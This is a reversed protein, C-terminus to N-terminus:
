NINNEISHVNFCNTLSNDNYYFEMVKVGNLEQLTLSKVFATFSFENKAVWYATNFMVRLQKYQDETMKRISLDMPGLVNTNGSIDKIAQPTSQNKIDGTFNCVVVKQNNKMYAFTEKRTASIHSSSDAHNRMSGIHFTSCGSSTAFTCSKKTMMYKRM